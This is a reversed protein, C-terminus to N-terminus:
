KLSKVMMEAHREHAKFIKLGAAFLSKVEPHDINPIFTNEVLDNAAQHYVLENEAHRQRRKTSSRACGAHRSRRPQGSGVRRDWGPYIM